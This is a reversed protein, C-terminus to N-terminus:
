ASTKSRDRCADPSKRLVWGRKAWEEAVRRRMDALQDSAPIGAYEQALQRKIDWIEELWDKQETM